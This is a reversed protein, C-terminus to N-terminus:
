KSVDSNLSVSLISVSDAADDFHGEGMNAVVGGDMEGEVDVGQIRLPGGAGAGGHSAAERQALAIEDALAHM